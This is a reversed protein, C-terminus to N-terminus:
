IKRSKTVEQVPNSNLNRLVFILNLKSQSSFQGQLFLLSALQEWLCGSKCLGEEAPESVLGWGRGMASYGLM